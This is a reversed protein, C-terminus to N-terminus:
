TISSVLSIISSIAKDTPAFLKCNNWGNGIYEIMGNNYLTTMMSYIKKYYGHSFSHHKLVQNVSMGGGTYSYNTVLLVLVEFSQNTLHNDTIFKNQNYIYSTVFKLTVKTVPPKDLVKVDEIEAIM